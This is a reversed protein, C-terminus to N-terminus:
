GGPPGTGAPVPLGGASPFSLDILFGIVFPHPPKGRVLDAGHQTGLVTLVWM